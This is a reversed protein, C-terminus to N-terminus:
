KTRTEAIPAEGERILYSQNGALAGLTQLRGGPWLIEVSEAKDREGLGILVRSDSQSLYSSGGKVSRTLTRGGVSCRARAGIASRNAVTGELRLRLWHNSSPSDNRLLLAQGGNAAILADPDGDNDIDAWALGRGVIKQKLGDGSTSSIDLYKGNRSNHFLLPPERYTVGSTRKDADDQIHGNSVLIDPWGDLDFDFFLVGFGLYLQSASGIGSQAAADLYHGTDTPRYLTLQEGAFNTIAISDPGTSQEDAVDVGMGAKAKGSEAVAIGAELAIEKFTGNAQNHFLFNPTTDNAVILDPFGDQDTDCVVVGLAKSRSNEIGASRTVDEFKGNGLSKYLLCTEGSYQDPTAYSKNVGDLSFYRDGAQTWKVYRCVFLDLLGDRNYDIFTAGTSWGDKRIGSKTTVDVLKRGLAGAGAENHLLRCDGVGTIFIDTWGDNDYDGATVGMGYFDLGKVVEPTVDEFRKGQLNRYIRLASHGPEPKGNWSRGDVLIIDVWGDNDLDVFACGAGMTEPM